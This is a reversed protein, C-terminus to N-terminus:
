QKYFIYFSNSKTIDHLSLLYLINHIKEKDDLESICIPIVRNYIIYRTKFSSVIYKQVSEEITM